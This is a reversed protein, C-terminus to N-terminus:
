YIYLGFLWHGAATGIKTHFDWKKLADTGIKLKDSTPVYYTIESHSHWLKLYAAQIGIRTPSWDLVKAGEWDIQHHQQKNGCMSQWPLVTWILICSSPACSLLGYCYKSCNQRPLAHTAVGGGFLSPLLWPAPTWGPNPIWAAYAYGCHSWSWSSLIHVQVVM